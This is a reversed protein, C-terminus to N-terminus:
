VMESPKEQSLELARVLGPVTGARFERFTVYQTRYGDPYHDRFVEQRDPRSGEIMGLSKQLGEDTRHAYGGFLTGDEAVVIGRLLFGGGKCYGYIVPLSDLPQDHPNHISPIMPSSDDPTM